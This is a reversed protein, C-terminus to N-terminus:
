VHLTNPGKLSMNNEMTHNHSLIGETGFIAGVRM